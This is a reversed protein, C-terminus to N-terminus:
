AEALFPLADLLISALESARQKILMHGAGPMIEFRSRGGAGVIREHIARAYKPPVLANSEGHVFLTPCRIRGAAEILTQSPAGLTVQVMSLLIEPHMTLVALEKEVEEASVTEPAFIDRM